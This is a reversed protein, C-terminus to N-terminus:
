QATQQVAKETHRLMVAFKFCDQVRVRFSLVEGQGLTRASVSFEVRFMINPTGAPCRPLSGHAPLPSSALSRKQLDCGPM